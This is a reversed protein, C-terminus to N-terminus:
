FHTVLSIIQIMSTKGTKSFFFSNEIDNSVLANNKMNAFAFLKIIHLHSHLCTRNKNKNKFLTKIFIVNENQIDILGLM